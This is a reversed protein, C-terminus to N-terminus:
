RNYRRSPSDSRSFVRFFRTLPSRPGFGTAVCGFSHQLMSKMASRSTSPRRKRTSVNTSLTRRTLGAITASPPSVPSRTTAARSWSRAAPCRGRRERDVIARLENGLRQVGPRVAVVHPQLEGPRTLRRVVGEDLGEVAAEAVFAQIYVPERRQLLRPRDDLGPPHVVIGLPGVACAALLGRGREARRPSRELLDRALGLPPAPIPHPGRAHPREVNVSGDFPASRTVRPPIAPPPGCAPRFPVMRIPRAQVPTCQQTASVEAVIADVAPISAPDVVSCTASTSPSCTAMARNVARQRRAARVLSPLM